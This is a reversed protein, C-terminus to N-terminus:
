PRYDHQLVDDGDRYCAKAPRIASCGPSGVGGLVAFVLPYRGHDSQRVCCRCCGSRRCILGLLSLLFMIGIVITEEIASANDPLKFGYPGICIGLVIYAIPLAQRAYLALTAFLAAGTFILFLSFIIPNQAEHM